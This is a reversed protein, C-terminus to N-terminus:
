WLFALWALFMFNEVPKMREEPIQFPQNEKTFRDYATFQSHTGKLLM